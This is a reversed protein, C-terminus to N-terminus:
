PLAQLFSEIAARAEPEDLMPAHGVNAVLQLHANPADAIMREAVFYDLLDSLMGRLVLVPRTAVLQRWAAWPEEQVPGDGFRDAIAPDYDAAVAGDGDSRYMRRAMALWGAADYHPLAQGNQAQLHDAAAQWDAFAPAKGVYSAIRQLGAPKLEPGIDNIVVAAVLDPRRGALDITILGGMSTGIFIARALGLADALRAVDDVYTPLRYDAQPDHASLGRGRVDIALVRRGFAALRPALDEFDRGNRTLGHLCIVPLRADGSAAPYDRAHLRLGDAGQWFLDSWGDRMM